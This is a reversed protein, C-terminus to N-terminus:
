VGRFRRWAAGIEHALADDVEGTALALTRDAAEGREEAARISRDLAVIDIEKRELLVGQEDTITLILKRTM